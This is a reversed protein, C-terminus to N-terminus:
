SRKYKDISFNVVSLALIVFNFYNRVVFRAIIAEDDGRMQVYHQLQSRHSRTRM